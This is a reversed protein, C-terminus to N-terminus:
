NTTTFSYDNHQPNDKKAQNRNYIENNNNAFNWKYTLYNPKESFYIRNIYYKTNPELNNIKNESILWSTLGTQLEQHKNPDIHNKILGDFEKDTKSLTIQYPGKINGKDDILELNAVLGDHFAQDHSILELNLNVQTPSINKIYKNEKNENFDSATTLITNQSPRCRITISSQNFITWTNDDNLVEIREFNYERNAIPLPIKVYMRNKLKFLLNERNIIQDSSGIDNSYAMFEKKTGDVTTYSFVFRAKKNVLWPYKVNLIFLKVECVPHNTKKDVDLTNKLYKEVLAISLPNQLEFNYTIQNLKHKEDLNNPNNKDLYYINDLEYLTATKIDDFKLNFEIMWKNIENKIPTCSIANTKIKKVIKNDKYKFTAAFTLNKLINSNAKLEVKLKINAENKRQFYDEQNELPLLAFNNNITLPQNKEEKTDDYIINTDLYGINVIAKPPKQDFEIKNIFSTKNLELNDLRATLYKKNNEAVVHAKTIKNDDYNITASMNTNLVNAEDSIEFKINTSNISNPSRPEEVLSSTLVKVLPKKIIVKNIELIDDLNAINNNVTLKNDVIGILTYKHNPAFLTNDNTKLTIKKNVDVIAQITKIENTNDIKFRLEIKKNILNADNFNITYDGNKLYNVVINPRNLTQKQNSSLDFNHVFEINEDSASVIKELRYQNPKVLKGIDFCIQGDNDVKALLKHLKHNQDKFIGYVQQNVYYPAVKAILNIDGNKTYQYPQNLSNVNLNNITKNHYAINVPNIVKVLPHTNNKYINVLEYFNNNALKSVDFDVNGEVDVKADISYIQNNLDKLQLSLSSNFLWKGVNIRYIKQNNQNIFSATKPPKSIMIQHEIALENQQILVHNYDTKDLIKVLRYDHNNALKSTNFYAVKDKITPQIYHYQHKEDVFVGMIQPNKKAKNKLNVKIVIDGTNSYENTKDIKSLTLGIISNSLKNKQLRYVNGQPLHNNIETKLDKKNHIKLWYSDNNQDVFIISNEKDYLRLVIGVIVASWCLNLCILFSAIKIHKKWHIKKNNKMKM